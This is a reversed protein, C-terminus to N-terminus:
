ASWPVVRLAANNSREAGVFFHWFSQVSNIATHDPAEDDAGTPDEVGVIAALLWFKRDGSNGPDPPTDWNIAASFRWSQADISAINVAGLDVWNGPLTLNALSIAYLQVSPNAFAIRRRNHVRVFIRYNNSINLQDDARKDALNTFETNIDAIAAAATQELVVIDAARGGWAVAGLGQDDMGDRVFPDPNYTEVSVIRMAARRDALVLANANRTDIVLSPIPNAAPRVQFEADHTVINDNAHSAIVLLAVESGVDVPVDWRFGLVQPTSSQLHPLNKTEALRWPAAAAPFSGWAGAAFDPARAPTGATDAFFLHVQTAAADGGGTNQVQVYVLNIEGARLSSEGSFDEDMEVADMVPGFDVFPASDIRIDISVHEQSALTRGAPVRPDDILRQAVDYQRGTDCVHNRVLLRVAPAGNLDCEYVGRGFTAVRLVDKNVANVTYRIAEMDYIQVLPLGINLTRWVPNFVLGGVAAAPAVANRIVYVGTLTGVYLTHPGAAVNPCGPDFALALSPSPGLRNAVAATANIDVGSIELWHSGQDGSLYVTGDPEACCFAVINASSPHVAIQAIWCGNAPVPGVANWDTGGNTTLFVEGRSTAAWWISNANAGPGYAIASIQANYFASTSGAPRFERLDGLNQNSWDHGDTTRYLAKYRGILGENANSPHHELVAYFTSKHSGSFGSGRELIEVRMQEDAGVDPLPNSYLWNFDTSQQVKAQSVGNQTTVHFARVDNPEFGIDGGDGGYMYHWTLGGYSVWTGNDQLGGGCVMPFNPHSTIDNPQSALIGHSRKRWTHGLDGTMSIGGDNGVWVKRIDSHDFVCAHQDAHQARDGKNYQLWDIIKDWHKGGDYSRYMDVSGTIIVKPDQRHVELVLDYWAQKGKDGPRSGTEEWNAGGDSSHFVNSAKNDQLAFIAYLHQPQAACLAIKLRHFKRKNIDADAKPFKNSSLYRWAIGAADTDYTNTARDYTAAFIGRGRLAVYVTYKAPPPGTTNGFNVVVDSADQKAASAPASAGDVVDQSFTPPNPFAGSPVGRWLGRLPSALWLRRPEWPDVIIREFNRSAITGTGVDPHDLRSLIQGGDTSWYLGAGSLKYDYDAKNLVPEGTGVYLVQANSRGVGLAGVPLAQPVNNPPSPPRFDDLVSWTDGANTTKWLGRPTGAYLIQANIPDQTICRVRGGVNRPGLSRWPFNAANPDRRAASGAHVLVEDLNERLSTSPISAIGENAEERADPEDHLEPDHIPEFSTM